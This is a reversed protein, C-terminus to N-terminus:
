ALGFHECILKATESAPYNTNDIRIYNKTKSEDAICVHNHEYDLIHKMTANIDRKSPKYRLRNPTNNRKLREDLTAYLEVFYCEINRSRFIKLIEDAIEIKDPESFRKVSTFIIGKKTSDAYAKLFALRIDNILVRGVGTPKDGWEHPFFNEVFDITVHNYLLDFGILKSLEQGVTMKGVAQPGFIWVFKM